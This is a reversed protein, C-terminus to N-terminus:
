SAYGEEIENDNLMDKLSTRFKICYGMSTLADICNRDNKEMEPASKEISLIQRYLNEAEHYSKEKFLLVDARRFM